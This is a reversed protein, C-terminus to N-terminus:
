YSKRNKVILYYNYYKNKRSDSRNRADFELTEKIYRKCKRKRIYSETQNKEIDKQHVQM